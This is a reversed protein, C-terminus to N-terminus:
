AESDFCPVRFRSLRLVFVIQLPYFLVYSLPVWDDYSSVLRLAFIWLIVMDVQSYAYIRLVIFLETIIIEQDVSVHKIVLVSVSRETLYPVISRHFMISAFKNKSYLFLNIIPNSDLSDFINSLSKQRYSHLQFLITLRIDSHTLFRDIELQFYSNRAQLRSDLVYNKTILIILFQWSLM